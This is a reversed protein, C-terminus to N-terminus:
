NDELIRINRLLIHHEQGPEATGDELELSVFFERDPRAPEFLVPPCKAWDTESLTLTEVCAKGNARKEWDGRGSRLRVSLRFPPGSTRYEFEVRFRRTVVNRIPISPGMGYHRISCFYRGTTQPRSVKIVGAAITLSCAEKTVLEQTHKDPNFQYDSDHPNKSSDYHVIDHGVGFTRLDAVATRLRFYDQLFYYM